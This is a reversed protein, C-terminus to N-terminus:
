AFALEMIEFLKKREENRMYASHIMFAAFFITLLAAFSTSLMSPNVIQVYLGSVITVIACIVVIVSFISSRETQKIVDVQEKKWWDADKVSENLQAESTKTLKSYQTILAQKLLENKQDM